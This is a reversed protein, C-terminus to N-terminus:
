LRDDGFTRLHADRAREAQAARGYRQLMQPSQWGALAMLNEDSLGRTKALHAFRHRFAHPNIPELGADISRRELMQRLGSDTLPGKVGIWLRPTDGARPHRARSRLYRDVAEATQPVLSLTRRRGGKGTVTFTAADLHVDAVELGIVESARVGTTALILVLATDRDREFKGHRGNLTKTRDGCAALLRSVEDDTPFAPPQDVVKPPRMKAMPSKDIEEEEELWRYLQVLSRYRRAVTADSLGKDRCAVLFGEIDGRTADLLSLDGLHTTLHRADNLYADITAPSRGASRLSRTWSALIDM